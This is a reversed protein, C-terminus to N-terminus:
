STQSDKNEPVNPKEKIESTTQITQTTTEITPPPSPAPNGRFIAALATLVSTVMGIMAVILTTDIKDKGMAVWITVFALTGFLILGALAIKDRLNTLVSSDM